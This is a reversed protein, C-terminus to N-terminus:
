LKLFGIVPCFALSLIGNDLTGLVSFAGSVLVGFVFTLPMETMANQGHCDSQILSTHKQPDCRHKVAQALIYPDLTLALMGDLTIKIKAKSRLHWLFNHHTYYIVICSTPVPTYFIYIAERHNKNIVSVAKLWHVETKM